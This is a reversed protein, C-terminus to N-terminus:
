PRFIFAPMWLGGAPPWGGWGAAIDVFRGRRLCRGVWGREPKAM